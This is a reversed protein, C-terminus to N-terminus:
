PVGKAKLITAHRNTADNFVAAGLFNERTLQRAKLVETAGGKRVVVVLNPGFPKIRDDLRSRLDVDENRLDDMTINLNRTFLFPTDDSANEDLGAVVNWVNHDGQCFAARNSAAAVGAGAFTSWSLNEVCGSDMLDAFYTEADPAKTYDKLAGTFDAAVGPWVNTQGTEAREYNASIIVLVISRGNNAIRLAYADVLSDVTDVRILLPSFILMVGGLIGLVWMARNKNGETLCLLLLVVIVFPPISREFVLVLCGFIALVWLFARRGGVILPKWKM